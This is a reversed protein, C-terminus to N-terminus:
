STVYKLLTVCRVCSRANMRACRSAIMILIRASVYMGICGRMRIRMYIHTYLIYIYIYIYICVIYYVIHMCVCMSARVFLMYLRM